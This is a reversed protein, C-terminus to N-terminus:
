VSGGGTGLAVALVDGKVDHKEELVQGEDVKIDKRRKYYGESARSQIALISMQVPIERNDIEISRFTLNMAAQGRFISFLRPKIVAGVMGTIKTGVPLVLQDNVMVPEEVTAVFPDGQQATSTTVSNQLLLRIESGQLLQNLDQSHAPIAAILCLCIVACLPVVKKM